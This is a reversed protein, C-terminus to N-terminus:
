KGPKFEFGFKVVDRKLGAIDNNLIAYWAAKINVRDAIEIGSELSFSFPDKAAPDLVQSLHQDSVFHMGLKAQVWLVGAQGDQDDLDWAGTQFRLGLDVDGSVVSETISPDALTPLRNMRIGAQYALSMTTYDGRTWFSNANTLQFNFVGSTPVLLSGVAKETPEADGLSAAEAGSFLYLPVTFLGKEGVCIRLVQAAAQLQGSNFFNLMTREAVQISRHLSCFQESGKLQDIARTGTAAREDRVLPRRVEVVQAQAAVPLALLSLVAWSTVRM